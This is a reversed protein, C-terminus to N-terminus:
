NSVRVQFVLSTAAKKKPAAGLAPAQTPAAAPKVGFTGLVGGGRKIAKRGPRM